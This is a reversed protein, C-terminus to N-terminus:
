VLIKFLIFNVIKDVRCLTIQYRLSICIIVNLNFQQCHFRNYLDFYKTAYKMKLITSKIACYIEILYKWFESSKNYFSSM